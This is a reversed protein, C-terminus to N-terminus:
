FIEFAFFLNELGGAGSISVINQYKLVGVKCADGATSLPATHM